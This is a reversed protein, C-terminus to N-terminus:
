RPLLIMIERQKCLGERRHPPARASSDTFHKYKYQLLLCLFFYLPSSRVDFPFRVFHSLALVFLVYSVLPLLCALFFPSPALLFLFLVSTPSLFHPLVSSVLSDECQDRAESSSHQFTQISCMAWCSLIWIFYKVYHTAEHVFKGKLRLITKAMFKATGEFRKTWLFCAIYSPLKHDYGHM